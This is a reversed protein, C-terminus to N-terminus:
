ERGKPSNSYSARSRRVTYKTGDLETVDEMLINVYDETLTSITYMTTLEM